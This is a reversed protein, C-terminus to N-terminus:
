WISDDAGSEILKDLVSDLIDVRAERLIFREGGSAAAAVLFTGTEIRDAMVQHLQVM